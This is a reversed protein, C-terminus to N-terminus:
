ENLQHPKKDITQKSYSWARIKIFISSMFFIKGHMASKPVQSVLCKKGILLIKTLYYCKWGSLKWRCSMTCYFDYIYNDM